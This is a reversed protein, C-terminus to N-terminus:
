AAAITRAIAETNLISNTEIIPTNHYDTPLPAQAGTVNVATKSNQYQELARSNGYILSPKGSTLPSETWVRRARGLLADDLQCGPEDTINKIRLVSGIAVSQLGVHGMVGGKFADYENGDKDKETELRTTKESFKGGFGVVWQLSTPGWKVMWVSTAQEADTGGADVELTEPVIQMLGPFGKPDGHLEDNGYYFVRGVTQIAAEMHDSAARAIVVEPGDESREAAAVDISFRSDLVHTNTRRTEYRGKTNPVGENINRFGVKPLEVRVLTDFGNGKITRATNINSIEPVDRSTENILGIVGDTNNAKIIDNLTYRGEPM